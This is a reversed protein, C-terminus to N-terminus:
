SVIEQLIITLGLNRNKSELHLRNTPVNKREM